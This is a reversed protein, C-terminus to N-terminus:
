ILVAEEGTRSTQLRSVRSMVHNLLRQLCEETSIEHTPLVLEPALPKEYPSDIGTFHHIEGARARKYLGKPDRMECAELPASVYVEIFMIGSAACMERVRQRDARFPSIFSTLVVLGAEAMLRAVEGARRINEARDKESFGLDACLGHRLNDGDLVFSHIGRRHLLRELGTALTSKGSGSLGTFWYVAGTHGFLEAREERGIEGETWSINASTVKGSDSKPYVLGSVVGGGAIRGGDIIVFRGTSTVTDANDLAVPRRSHVRLVAVEHRGVESRAGSAPELTESDLVKEIATIRATLKQTGIRLEYNQNLRLPENGLWFLTAKWERAEVCPANLHCGIQGREVFIQEELTIAFSEGARVKFPPVDARWREISAVRSRKHDPVFVIEDGVALTGSEVRGAIIRRHDFRYIDQVTLRLPGNEASTSPQFSDLAQLITPGDYWPMQMARHLVNHGHKAAIPIFHTARVGLKGLYASYQQFIKEFAEQSFDVLDMKNVAVIVQRINLLSLLLGHRKSQERVGEHADILLIAAEARAAGTVMNKLFEKHGPADIIIYERRSTRFHIQTTDITINQEQEELLADLLFAYEFEMGEAACAKRIAELKGHPLSDTDYFIRGILTSKGHDVHGVVVLRLSELESHTQQM